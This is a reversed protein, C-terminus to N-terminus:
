FTSRQVAYANYKNDLYVQAQSNFKRFLVTLLSGRLKHFASIDLGM